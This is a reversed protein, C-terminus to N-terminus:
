RMATRSWSEAVEDDSDEDYRDSPVAVTPQSVLHQTPLTGSLLYNRAVHLSRSAPGETLSLHLRTPSTARSLAVYIQGHSWSKRQLCLWVIGPITSGQASDITRGYSLALPIQLRVINIDSRGVLVDQTQAIRPLWVARWSGALVDRVRVVRVSAPGWGVVVVREGKLYGWSLNASLHAIAGLKM